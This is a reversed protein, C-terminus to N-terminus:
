YHEFSFGYGAVDYFHTQIPHFQSTLYLHISDFFSKWFPTDSIRWRFGLRLQDNITGQVVQLQVAADVPINEFPAWWLDQEHYFNDIDFNDGSTDMLSNLHFVNYYSIRYPFFILTDLTIRNMDRTDYTYNMDLSGSVRDDRDAQVIGASLVFVCLLCVVRHIKKM